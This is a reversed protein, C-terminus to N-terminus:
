IKSLQEFALRLAKDQSRDAQELSQMSKDITNSFITLVRQTEAYAEMPDTYTDVPTSTRASTNFLMVGVGVLLAVSAAISFSRRFTLLRFRRPATPPTECAKQEATQGAEQWSDIAQSLRHELGAPVEVKDDAAALANFFLRDDAFEEDTVEGSFYDRLRREQSESARGEYYLDLLRRIESKNYDNM